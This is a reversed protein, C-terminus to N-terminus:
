NSAKSKKSTEIELISEYVKFITCLVSIEKYNNCNARDDKENNSLILTENWAEPIQARDWILNLMELVYSKGHVELYKIM